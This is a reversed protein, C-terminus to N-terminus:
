GGNKEDTNSVSLLPKSMDFSQGPKAFVEAVRGDKKAVIIEERDASLQILKQEHERKQRELGAIFNQQQKPLQKLEYELSRIQKELKLQERATQLQQTKLQLAKQKAQNLELANTWGKEYLATVRDLTESALKTQQVLSEYIAKLHDHDLKSRSLQSSKNAHKLEFEQEARKIQQDLDAKLWYLQDTLLQNVPKGDATYSETNIKVLIQNKTVFDGASVHVSAVTGTRQTSYHQIVGSEPEVWGTANIQRSYTGNALWFCGAFLWLLLIAVALYVPIQPTILMKGLLENSQHEVVQRRFLGTKTQEVM